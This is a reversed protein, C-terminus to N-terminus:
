GAASARFTYFGDPLGDFSASGDSGTTATKETGDRADATVIVGTLPRSTVSDVVSVSM